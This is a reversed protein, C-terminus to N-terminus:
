FPFIGVKWYSPGFIFNDAEGGRKQLMKSTLFIIWPFWLLVCDQCFHLFKCSFKFYANGPGLFCGRMMRSMWQFDRRWELSPPRKTFFYRTRRVATLGGSTWCSFLFSNGLFKRVWTSTNSNRSISDRAFTLILNANEWCFSDTSRTKKWVNIIRGNKKFGM